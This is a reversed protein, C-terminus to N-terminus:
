AKFLSEIKAKAAKAPDKGNETMPSDKFVFFECFNSRDKEIVREAQPERCDNYSGVHYHACNLCCHLDAGCFPCTETRGAPTKIELVNLCAHCRKM